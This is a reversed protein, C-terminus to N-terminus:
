GRNGKKTNKSAEEGLYNKIDEDTSMINDASVIGKWYNTM